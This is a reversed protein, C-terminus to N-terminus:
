FRQVSVVGPPVPGGKGDMEVNRMDVEFKVSAFYNLNVKKAVISGFLTSIRKDENGMNVVANPAYLGFVGVRMGLEVKDGTSQIILDSPKTWVKDLGVKKMWSTGTYHKMAVFYKETSDGVGQEKRNVTNTQITQTGDKQEMDITMDANQTGAGLVAGMQASWSYGDGTSINMQYADSSSLNKDDIKESVKDFNGDLTKVTNVYRNSSSDKNNNFLVIGRDGQLNIEGGNIIIQVPGKTVDVILQPHNGTNPLIKGLVEKDPGPKVIMSDFVFYSTEGPASPDAVLIRRDCTAGDVVFDGTYKGPLMVASQTTSDPYSRLLLGAPIKVPPLKIATDFSSVGETAKGTYGTASATPGSFIGGIIQTAPGLNINGSNAGVGGAGGLIWRESKWNGLGDNVLKYSTVHACRDMNVGEAGFVAYRFPLNGSGGTSGKLFAGIKKRSNNGVKGEALIYCTGEVLLEEATKSGLTDKIEKPIDQLNDKDLRNCVWVTYAAKLTPMKTNSFTLRNGDKGNWEPNESITDIARSLGVEAAYFAQTDYLCKATSTDDFKDDLKDDKITLVFAALVLVTLIVIIILVTPIASGKNTKMTNMTKITKMTKV